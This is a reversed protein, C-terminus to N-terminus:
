RNVDKRLGPQQYNDHRVEIRCGSFLQCPLDCLSCVSSAADFHPMVIVSLRTLSSSAMWCIQPYVGNQRRKCFCKRGPM